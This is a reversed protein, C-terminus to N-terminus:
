KKRRKRRGKNRRSNIILFSSSVHFMFYCVYFAYKFSSFLALSLNSFLFLVATTKSCCFLANPPYLQSLSNSSNFTLGLTKHDMQITLVVLHVSSADLLNKTCSDPSSAVIKQYKFGLTSGQLTSLVTLGLNRAQPFLVAQLNSHCLGALSYLLGPGTSHTPISHAPSLHPQRLTLFPQSSCLLTSQLFELNNKAARLTLLDWSMGPNLLCLIM